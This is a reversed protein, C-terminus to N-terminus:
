KAARCSPKAPCYNCLGSPKAPWFGTSVSLYIADIRRVVESVLKEQEDRHYIQRDLAKDKLWVLATSVTTVMPYHIFVQAASLRLQFMDPRRRGTKWDLVVAATKDETRGFVDLKSRLWADESWWGTPTLAQTLVLEHEPTTEMGDLVLCIPELKAHEQPLPAVKAVRDELVKHIENGTKIAQSEEGEHVDKAVRQRFYRLPCNEFM